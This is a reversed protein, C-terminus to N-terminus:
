AGAYKVILTEVAVRDDMEGTKIDMDAKLCDGLAEVLRALAFNRAQRLAISVVFSKLSLASAIDRESMGRALMAKGQAMLRFQRALLALVKLPSEKMLIMGSLIELAVEPKKAGVADVLEFVKAEITPSCVAAIDDESVQKRDGLYSDLKGVEMALSEMSKATQRILALCCSVSIAKGKKKLMGQIWDSLEKETPTEFIVAMGVENLKKFLKSRRDIDDEVFVLVTTDCCDALYRAMKESDSSRETTFLRSEKCIVVRREGFFPLTECADTIMDANPEVGSFIDLNMSEDSGALAKEKIQESYYRSLYREEGCLLYAKSFNGSKLDAKLRKM